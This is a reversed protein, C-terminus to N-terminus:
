CKLMSSNGKSILAKLGNKILLKNMAAYASFKQNHTVIIIQNNEMFNVKSMLRGFYQKMQSSSRKIHKQMYFVTFYITSFLNVETSFKEIFKICSSSRTQDMFVVILINVIGYSDHDKKHTFLDWQTIKHKHHTSM